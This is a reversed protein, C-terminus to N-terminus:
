GTWFQVQHADGFPRLVISLHENEGFLPKGYHQAHVVHALHLHAKKAHSHPECLLLTHEAQM